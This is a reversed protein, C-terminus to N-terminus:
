GAAARAPPRALAAVLGWGAAFGSAALALKALMWVDPLGLGAGFTQPPVMAAVAAVVVAVGFRAAWVGRAPRPVDALADRVALGAALALVVAFAVAAAAQGAPRSGAYRIALAPVAFLLTFRRGFAFLLRVLWSGSAAVPASGAWSAAAAVFAAAAMPLGLTRLWGLNYLLAVLNTGMVLVSMAALGFGFWVLRWASPLDPVVAPGALARMLPVTLLVGVGRLALDDMTYRNELLVEIGCLVVTFSLCLLGGLPGAAIQRAVSRDVLRAVSLYAFAAFPLELVAQVRLASPALWEPEPVVRELWRVAPHEPEMRAFFVAPFDRGFFATSGGHAGFVYANFAVQNVWLLLLVAAFALGFRDVRGAAATGSPPRAFVAGVLVSLLATVSILTWM